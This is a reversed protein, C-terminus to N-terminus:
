GASRGHKRRFRELNRRSGRTEENDPGHLEEMGNFDRIFLEEAETISGTAELLEALCYVCSLTEADNAGLQAEFGALARRMLPEADAFKEREILVRAVNSMSRLTKLDEPGHLEEMGNLERIFLEEAEAISGTAELLKALRRISNLTHPHGAGLHSEFGALARRMLPEADAFHKQKMLVNALNYVWTLTDPHSRGLQAESGALARRFLEEAEHLKGQEYLLTALNNISILTSPHAAGLLAERGEMCKRAFPEAEDLKGQSQLVLALNNLSVLTDRHKSGLQEERGTLVRRQLAEAEALQGQLRLVVALNAVPVLTELHAAGHLREDAEVVRRYLDTAEKWQGRRTLVLALNNLASLTNPYEPGFQAEEAALIRRRLTEAEALAGRDELVSALRSLALLTEAHESGLHTTIAEARCRLTEVLVARAHGVKEEQQVRVVICERPPMGPENLLKGALNVGIPRGKEVMEPTQRKSVDYACCADVLMPICYAVRSHYEEVTAERGKLEIDRKMMNRYNNDLLTEINPWQNPAKRVSYVGRGWWANAKKGETVLSAFVEVLEKSENTINHFGLETTYHFFCEVDGAGGAGGAGAQTLDLADQWVKINSGKHLWCWDDADHEYEEHYFVGGEKYAKEFYRKLSAESPSFLIDLFDKVCIWSDEPYEKLLVNAEQLTGGISQLVEIYSQRELSDSEGLKSTFIAEVQRRLDTMSEVSSGAGRQTGGAATSVGPTSDRHGGFAADETAVVSSFELASSGSSM